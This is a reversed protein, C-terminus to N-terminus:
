SSLVALKPQPISLGTRKDFAEELIRIRPFLMNNELHVHQHLDNTFAELGKVVAGHMACAGNPVTFNGLLARIKAFIQATEEHEQEMRAIPGDVTVFPALPRRGSFEHASALSKFYPFLIM